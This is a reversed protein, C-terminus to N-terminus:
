MGVQLHKRLDAATAGNALKVYCASEMGRTMPMLHPTFSRLPATYFLLQHCAALSEAPLRLGRGCALVVAGTLQHCAALSAAPPRPGGGCAAPPLRNPFRSAPSSRQRLNLDCTAVVGAPVAGSACRVRVDKGCADALGQEIEPMHRHRTVSYANIGETVQQSICFLAAAPAPLQRVGYAEGSSVLSFPLVRGSARRCEVANRQM